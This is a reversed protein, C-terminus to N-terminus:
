RFSALAILTSSFFFTLSCFHSQKASISLLTVTFAYNACIGLNFTWFLLITFYLCLKPAQVAPSKDKNHRDNRRRGRREKLNLELKDQQCVRQVRWQGRLKQGWLWLFLVAGPREGAGHHSHLNLVKFVSRCM